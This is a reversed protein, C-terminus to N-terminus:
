PMEKIQSEIFAIEDPTLAYRAYLLEDTWTVTMDLAPVFAFVGRSVNQTNMRLWILFRAFKTRIMAALNEAEEATAFAGAVLYTETCVSHPPVTFPNAVVRFPGNGEEGYAKHILTLHQAGFESGSKVNSPSTWGSTRGKVFLCVDGANPEATFDTFSSAIGFPNRASVLLDLTPGGAPNVKELISIADNSRVFVDYQNLKRVQSVDSLGLRKTTISCEGTYERSWLFYNVGGRIKVGPFCDTAEPYDVIRSIREDALMRERFKDLGKGGAFWRSPTIMLVHAPDMDIAAEVFKQYIPVASNGKGGGDAVQYPPNGAIVDFRMPFDKPLQDTHIFSYAYNARSEGRELSEHASCLECSGDKFTHTVDTWPINGHETGMRVVSFDPHDADKTYYVTRRAVLSTLETTPLGYLMNKYIHERREDEDPIVDSLGDMLRRAIERLFVGSKTSPDLWKLDPNTWVDAPLLRLMQRALTPPTFVEDNSLSAICDLIDPKARGDVSRRGSM